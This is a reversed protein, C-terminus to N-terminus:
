LVPSWWVFVALAALLFFYALLKAILPTTPLGQTQEPEDVLAGILGSL